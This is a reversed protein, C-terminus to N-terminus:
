LIKIASILSVFAEEITLKDTNIILDAKVPIDFLIDNGVVDINNSSEYVGKVDAKVASFIERDLFVEFYGSLKRRCFDRLDQFPSINCVIVVSNEQTAIFAAGIIRKINERRQTISFGLDNDFFDRFDDGDIFITSKNQKKFYEKLLLGLTSKGSGSIGLLWIVMTKFGVNFRLYM